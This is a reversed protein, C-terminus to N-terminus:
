RRREKECPCPVAKHTRYKHSSACSMTIMIVMLIAVLMNLIKFNCIGKLMGRKFAKYFSHRLLLGFNHLMILNVM